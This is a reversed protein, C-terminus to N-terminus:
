NFRKLDHSPLGFCETNRQRSILWSFMQEVKRFRSKRQRVVIKGPFQEGHPMVFISGSNNASLKM